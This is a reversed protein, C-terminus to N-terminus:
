LDKACRFGLFHQQSVVFAGNRYSTRLGQVNTIFSGGRYGRHTGSEPGKPNRNPSQQYYDKGYWDAVWEFVNGAMDLMGYPSAGESLKSVALASRTCDRYNARTCDAPENGWPYIRGDTGRAAKEWEAEFPLRKGAWECYKKAQDWSVGVAPLQPDPPAPFMSNSPCSGAKVCEDYDAQSVEDKDMLFGKLDVQHFPKEDEDCTADVEQYCGMGFQGAPVLLMPGGQTKPPHYEEGPKVPPKPQCSSECGQIFLLLIMWYFIKRKM